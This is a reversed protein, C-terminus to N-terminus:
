MHIQLHQAPILLDNYAIAVPDGMFGNSEQVTSILLSGAPKKSFLAYQDFAPHDPSPPGDLGQQRLFADTAHKWECAVEDGVLFDLTYYGAELAHELREGSLSGHRAAERLKSSVGHSNREPAPANAGRAYVVQLHHVQFPCRTTRRGSHGELRLTWPRSVSM